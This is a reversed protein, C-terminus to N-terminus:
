MDEGDEDSRDDRDLLEGSDEGICCCTRGLWATAGVGESASAWGREWWAGCKWGAECM